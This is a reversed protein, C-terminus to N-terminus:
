PKMLCRIGSGKRGNNHCMGLAGGKREGCVKPFFADGGRLRRRKLRSNSTLIFGAILTEVSTMCRGFRKQFHKCWRHLPWFFTKAIQVVPAVVEFLNKRNAGGTCRGFFPKQSKCWRHLSWFTTKAIQVVPAVVLFLNKRNAGGTCRGLFPKQSKCRRHLSWFFTKAIQVVPALMELFVKAM